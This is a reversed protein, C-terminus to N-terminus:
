AAEPQEIRSIFDEFKGGPMRELADVRSFSLQFPYRLYANLNRCLKGEEDRDLDRDLLYRVEVHSPSLQVLQMGRLPAVDLFALAPFSPWFRRGDPDVAMNRVRGAIRALVPLGRGCPCPAGVEAYDGLEYRILPMAFNHLTTVVVRGTEGVACPTGDERLIEVYASEAQVHYHEHDPCQLALTGFEGCSYADILPLHWQERALERLGAPVSEGLLIAARLGPPVKGSERSRLLLAQLTSPRTQLYGPREDILWDLLVDTDNSSSLMAAPGTRFAAATVPSWAAQTGDELLSNIACLKASLDLGHWLHNRVVLAHFQFQAVDTYALKVPVGSSGSTSGTLIRGHERPVTDACFRPENGALDRKDLIPWRRFSEPDLSRFVERPVDRYAPVRALAHEILEALQALQRELLAEPTWWQSQELQWQMALMSAGAATPLAPWAIGPVCSFPLAAM